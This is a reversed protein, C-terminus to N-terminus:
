INWNRMALAWQIPSMSVHYRSVNGAEWEESNPKFDLGYITELCLKRFEMPFTVAGGYNLRAEIYHTIPEKNRTGNISRVRAGKDFQQVFKKIPQSNTTM